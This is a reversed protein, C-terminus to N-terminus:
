RRFQLILHNSRRNYRHANQLTRWNPFAIGFHLDSNCYDPTSTLSNRCYNVKRETLRVRLTLLHICDFHAITTCVFDSRKLSRAKGIDETQQRVIRICVRHPNHCNRALSALMVDSFNNSELHGFPYQLPSPITSLYM